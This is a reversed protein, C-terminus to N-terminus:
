LDTAHQAMWAPVTATAKLWDPWGAVEHRCADIQKLFGAHKPHERRVVREVPGEDAPPTQKDTTRM